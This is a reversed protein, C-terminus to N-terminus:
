LSVTLSLAKQFIRRRFLTRVSYARRKRDGGEVEGAPATETQSAQSTSSPGAVPGSEADQATEKKAPVARLTNNSGQVHIGNRININLPRPNGVQDVLSDARNLAGILVAALSTLRPNSGDTQGPQSSIGSEPLQINNGNGILTVSSDITINIPVSDLYDDQDALYNPVTV